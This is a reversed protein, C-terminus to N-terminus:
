ESHGSLLHGRQANVFETVFAEVPHDTRVKVATGAWMSPDGPLLEVQALGALCIEALRRGAELGGSVNIGCDILQANAPADEALAVRLAAAEDLLRECLVGARQNLEVIVKGPCGGSSRGYEM